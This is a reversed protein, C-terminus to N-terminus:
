VTAARGFYNCLHEKWIYRAIEKVTEDASNDNYFSFNNYTFM